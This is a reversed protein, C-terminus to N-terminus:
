LSHCSTVLQKEIVEVETTSVSTSQHNGTECLRPTIHKSLHCLSPDMSIKHRISLLKCKRVHDRNLRILSFQKKLCPDGDLCRSM